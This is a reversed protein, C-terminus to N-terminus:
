GLRGRATPPNYLASPRVEIQPSEFLVSVQFNGILHKM